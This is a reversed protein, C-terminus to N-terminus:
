GISISGDQARQIKRFLDECIELLKKAQTWDLAEVESPVLKEAGWRTCQVALLRPVENGLGGGSYHGLLNPSVTSLHIAALSGRFSTIAMHPCGAFTRLVVYYIFEKIYIEILPANPMGLSSSVIGPSSILHRIKGGTNRSNQDLISALVEIQYKSSQYPRSTKILQIDSWDFFPGATVSTTWIVRSGMETPSEELLPKLLSFLTFHAFLNTQWIMGFGDESIEGVYDTLYDLQIPITAPAAFLQKMYKKQDVEFHAYGANFFLHSIYAHRKKLQKALEFVTTLSGLDIHVTLIELNARLERGRDKAKSGSRAVYTDVFQIIKAKAAEARDLSRCAMILTLDTCSIYSGEAKISPSKFASTSFGDCFQEILRQCFGFGVGTNAGTVLIVARGSDVTNTM